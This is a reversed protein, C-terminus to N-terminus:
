VFFIALYIQPKSWSNVKIRIYNKKNASQWNIATALLKASSTELTSNLVIAGNSEIFMKQLHYSPTGYGEYSNFVIADPM